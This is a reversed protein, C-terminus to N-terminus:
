NYDQLFSIEQALIDFDLLVHTYSSAEIGLHLYVVLKNCAKNGSRTNQSGLILPLPFCLKRLIIELLSSSGKKDQASRPGGPVSLSDKISYEEFRLGLERVDEKCLM